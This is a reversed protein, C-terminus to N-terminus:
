VADSSEESELWKRIKAYDEEDEMYIFVDEIGIEYSKIKLRKKLIDLIEKDSSSLEESEEKFHRNPAYFDWYCTDQGNVSNKIFDGIKEAVYSDKDLRIRKNNEDYVNIFMEVKNSAEDYTTSQVRAYDVRVLYKKNNICLEFGKINSKINSM